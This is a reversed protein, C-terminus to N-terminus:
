TTMVRREIAGDLNPAYVSPVGLVYGDERKLAVGVIRGERDNVSKLLEWKRNWFIGVGRAQRQCLSM